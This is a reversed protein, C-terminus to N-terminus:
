HFLNNWIRHATFGLNMFTTDEHDNLDYMVRSVNLHQSYLPSCSLFTGAKMSSVDWLPSLHYILICVYILFCRITNVAMFFVHYQLLFPAM